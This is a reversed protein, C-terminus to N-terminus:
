AVLLGRDVLRDIAAVIEVHDVEPVIAVAGPERPLVFNLVGARVLRVEDLRKCAAHMSDVPVRPPMGYEGLVRFIRDAYATSCVGRDVAIETAVMIGVGVAEGHLIDFGMEVELPHGFTHGLNLARRLDEEYPDPALLAAKGRSARHVVDELVDADFRHILQVDRELLEFLDADICMAVKVAEVV